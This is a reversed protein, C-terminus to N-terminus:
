KVLMMKKTSTFGNAKLSYFYIGTSLKSANFTINYSGAKQNSNVLTAVEQGLLNFVKLTVMSEKPVSYSIVTSPNFPNPYNQSLTFSAPLKEDKSVATLTLQSENEATIWEAAKTQNNVWSTKAASFWNLDGLPLKEISATLLSSNSYSCNVRPWVVPNGYNYTADGCYMWNGANSPQPDVSNSTFGWTNLEAAPLTWAVLSDEM